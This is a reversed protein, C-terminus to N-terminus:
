KRFYPDFHFGLHQDEATLLAADVPHRAHDFDRDPNMFLDVIEDTVKARAEQHEKLVNWVVEITKKKVESTMMRGASYEKAIHKLEEDSDLFYLLYHYSVDVALNAGKEMHEQKTTGGGSFAKERIKKSVAEQTDSMFIVEKMGTSSAKDHAHELSPLFRSQITAPKIYGLKQAIERTMRFYPYQDIAMPVICHVQRDQFVNAFSTSFAPAAQFCPWSIQGISNNLDLGFVGHVTNGTTHKMILVINRYLSGGVTELNSFIWTKKPNFGCAIIDKANARALRNAEELPLGDKFYYKEDDTLQVVVIASLADQLYKTFMFPVMHGLHLSESSPGRGTYLYIEEGKEFANLAIDLDKHSFFIGRRLWPHAKTKTVQEFRRVLAGDIPQCGFHKILKLYDIGTTSTVEWPTIKTDDIM